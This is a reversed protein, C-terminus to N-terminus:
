EQFFIANERLNKFQNPRISPTGALDIFLFSNSAFDQFCLLQPTTSAAQSTSGSPLSLKFAGPIPVNYLWEINYRITFDLFYHLFNLRIGSHSHLM